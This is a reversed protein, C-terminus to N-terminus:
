YMTTGRANNVDWSGNARHYPWPLHPALMRKLLLICMLCVGHLVHCFAHFLARLPYDFTCGAAAQMLCQMVDFAHQRAMQPLRARDCRPLLGDFEMFFPICVYFIVQEFRAEEFEKRASARLVDRWPRGREDRWVFLNSYRLVERYLSLAERRTTLIRPGTSDGRRPRVVSADLM